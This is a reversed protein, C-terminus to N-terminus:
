GENLQVNRVGVGEVMSRGRLHARSARVEAIAALRSRRQGAAEFFSRATDAPM